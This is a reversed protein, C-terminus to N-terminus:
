DDFVAFYKEKIVENEYNDLFLRRVEQNYKDITGNFFVQIGEIYDKPANCRVVGVINEVEYGELAEDSAFIVKGFMMAEATKTKMGAGYLIPEVVCGAQYYWEDIRDVTGIVKINSYEAFLNSLNEFGKGVIYLTYDPLMRMVEKAFWVASDVNAQLGAAGVFLLKRKEFGEKTRDLQECFVDKYCVPICFDAQRNYYRSLLKEDRRNLVIHRDGYKASLKENFWYSFYQVLHILGKNKVIYWAFDKEINHYFVITKVGTKKVRKVIRGYISGDFFVIDMGRNKIFDVIQQEKKKNYNGRLFLSNIFYEYKSKHKEVKIVNSSEELQDNTIIVAYVNESGYKDVIMRYNSYSVKTGGNGIKHFTNIGSLFLVQHKEKKDDDKMRNEFNEM